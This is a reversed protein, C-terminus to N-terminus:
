YKKLTIFSRIWVYLLYLLIAISFLSFLMFIVIHDRLLTDMITENVTAPDINGHFQSVLYFGLCFGFLLSFVVYGGWVWLASVVRNKDQFLRMRDFLDKVKVMAIISVILAVIGLLSILISVIHLVLAVIMWTRCTAAENKFDMMMGASNMTGNYNSNMYNNSGTSYGNESYGNNYNGASITSYENNSDNNNSNGNYM